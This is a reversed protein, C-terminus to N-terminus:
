RITPPATSSASTSLASTTTTAIATAAKRRKKVHAPSSAARTAIPGVAAPVDTRLVVTVARLVVIVLRVASDAWAKQVVLVHGCVVQVVLVRVHVLVVVLGVIVAGEFASLCTIRPIDFLVLVFKSLILDIGIAPILSLTPALCAARFALAAVPFRHCAWPLPAGLAVDLSNLLALV